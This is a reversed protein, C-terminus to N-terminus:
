MFKNDPGVSPDSKDSIQEQPRKDVESKLARKDKEKARGKATTEPIDKLIKIPEM